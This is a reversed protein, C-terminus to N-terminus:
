PNFPAQVYSYNYGYVPNMHDNNYHTTHLQQELEVPQSADEQKQTVYSTALHAENPPSVCTSWNNMYNDTAKNLEETVQPFVPQKTKQNTVYGPPPVKLNLPPPPVSFDPPPMSLDPPPPIIFNYDNVKDTNSDSRNKKPSKVTGM